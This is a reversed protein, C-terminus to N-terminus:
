NFTSLASEDFCRTLELVDMCLFNSRSFEHWTWELIDDTLRTPVGFVPLQTGGVFEEMPQLAIRSVRYNSSLVGPSQDLSFLSLGDLAERGTRDEMIVLFPSLFLFFISPQNGKGSVNDGRNLGRRYSLKAYLLCLSLFSSSILTPVSEYWLSFPTREQWIIFSNSGLIIRVEEPRLSDKGKKKGGKQKDGECVYRLFFYFLIKARAPFFSQPRHGIMPACFWVSSLFKHCPPLLYVQWSRKRRWLGCWCAIIDSKFWDCTPLLCNYLVRTLKWREDQSTRDAHIRLPMQRHAM